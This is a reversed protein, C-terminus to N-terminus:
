WKIFDYCEQDRNLRLLIMPLLERFRGGDARSLRLCDYILDVATRLAHNSSFDGTQINNILAHRARMFPVTQGVSWFQGVDDIFPDGTPLAHLRSEEVSLGEIAKLYEKCGTKHRAFHEKQHERCCYWEM